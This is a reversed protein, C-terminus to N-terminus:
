PNIPTAPADPNYMDVLVLWAGPQKRWVTLFKGRERVTRGDLTYTAEYWGRAFGLEGSRPVTLTETHWSIAFAPDKFEESWVARIAARGQAAPRDPAMLVADEAYFSVTTELDKAAAARAWAGDAALIGREDVNLAGTKAGAATVVLLLACGVLIWATRPKIEM